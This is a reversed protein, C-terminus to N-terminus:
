DCVASTVRELSGLRLNFYGVCFDSRESHELTKRLAPLLQTEINDFIRPM